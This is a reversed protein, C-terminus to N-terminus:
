RSSRPMSRASRRRTRRTWRARPRRPPPRRASRPATSGRETREGADDERRRARLRRRVRTRAARWRRHWTPFTAARRRANCAPKPPSFQPMATSRTPRPHPLSPLRSPFPPPVGRVAFEWSPTYPGHMVDVHEALPNASERMLAHPDIDHESCLDLVRRSFRVAMRAPARAAHAANFTDAAQREALRELTARPTPRGRNSGPFFRAYGKNQKQRPTLAVPGGESRGESPKEPPQPVLVAYLEPDRSLPDPGRQKGTVGVEFRQYRTSLMGLGVKRAERAMRKEDMTAMAGRRARAAARSSCRRSFSRVGVWGALSLEPSRARAQSVSRLPRFVM